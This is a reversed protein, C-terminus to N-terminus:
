LDAAYVIGDCVLFAEQDAPQEPLAFDKMYVAHGDYWALEPFQTKWTGPVQIDRLGAPDWCPFLQNPQATNLWWKQRRCRQM